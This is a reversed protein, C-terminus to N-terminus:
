STVLPWEPRVYLKQLTVLPWEPKAYFKQLTVLAGPASPGSFWLAVLDDVSTTPTGHHQGYGGYYYPTTPGFTDLLRGGRGDGLGQDRIARVGRARGTGNGQVGSDILLQQVQLIDVFEDGGTAGAGAGDRIRQRAGFGDGKADEHERRMTLTLM